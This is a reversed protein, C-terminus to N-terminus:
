NTIKEYIYPSLMPTYFRGNKKIFNDYHKRLLNIEDFTETNDEWWMDTIILDYKQKPEYSFFDSHIINVKNPLYGMSKVATILEENSEIVTIKSLPCVNTLWHPICGIELGIVLIDSKMNQVDVESKYLADIYNFDTYNSVFDGYHYFYVGKGQPVIHFNTGRYNKVKSTDLYKM